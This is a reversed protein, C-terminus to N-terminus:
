ASQRRPEVPAQAAKRVAEVELAIEVKDGVVVGGTELVQNWGLGFDKRNLSTRASFGVRQGGWPDQARGGYEVELVVPRTMGRITLDGRVRFGEEGAQEVSTSKFTLSPFREADLFEPSRLHADRQPEQTDISAAEILLEARSSTPAQEDFELKGSWRAFRGRVKSVMLHRVSFGISSHVLDFEWEELAM